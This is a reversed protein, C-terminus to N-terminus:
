NNRKSKNLKSSTFAFILSFKLYRIKNCIEPLCKKKKQGELILQPLACLSKYLHWMESHNCLFQFLLMDDLWQSPYCEGASRTHSVLLFRKLHLFGIPEVLDSAQLFILKIYNKAFGMCICTALPQQVQIPANGSAMDRVLYGIGMCFLFVYDM